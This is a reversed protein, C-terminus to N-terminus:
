ESDGKDAEPPLLKNEVLFSKIQKEKGRREAYAHLTTQNISYKRFVNKFITEVESKTIFFCPTNQTFIDVLLKEIAPINFNKNELKKIPSRTIFPNLIIASDLDYIYRDLETESPKLFINQFSKKLNFFVSEIFDKEIEVITFNNSYQHSTFENIWNSESVCFIIEPFSKSITVAIKECHNSLPITYVSKEILSYQGRGVERIVGKKKLNYIRWAFTNKNLLPENLQYFQYLENRTFNDKFHTILNNKIM